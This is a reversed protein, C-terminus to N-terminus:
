IYRRVKNMYNLYDDGFEKICWREESLILYHVSIQFIFLVLFQLWSGSMMSFGLFYLFFAVYMPNRSIKYLGAVNLGKQDPKSFQIISFFYLFMGLAYIGLGLYSLFGSLGVEEFISIILLLLVTIQYVWHAIKEIGKNIPPFHAARIFAEKSLISLIIYRIFIIPLVLIFGNM